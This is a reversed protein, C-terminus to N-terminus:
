LIRNHAHEHLSYFPPCLSAETLFLFSEEKNHSDELFNIEIVFISM